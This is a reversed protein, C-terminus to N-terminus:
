QNMEEAFWESFKERTSAEKTIIPEPNGLPANYHAAAFDKALFQADARWEEENEGRLRDAYEIKLGAELAIRTKELDTKYKASTAIEADKDAIIQQTAAAAEELKKIKEEYTNTIAQVDDPSKWGTYKEAAKENARQIREGILKDLQEQTEIVKFESM